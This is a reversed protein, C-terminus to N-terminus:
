IEFFVKKESSNPLLAPCKRLFSNFHTAEAFHLRYAIEKASLTTQILLSKASNLFHYQIAESATKGTIRKIVANLHDPHVILKDAYWSLACNRILTKM